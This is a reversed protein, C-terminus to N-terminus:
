CWIRTQTFDRFIVSSLAIWIAPGCANGQLVGQPYNWWDGIDDGGYTIDSDGFATRIKHIMRQITDFMSHIKSPPICIRLLALAAATHVIRDYCGALDSSTLAFCQRTYQHHDIINRKAVMQDISSSGPKAFQETAITQLSLGNDTTNEGLMKNNQNYETDLIVLTRQKTLEFNMQKKLIMLDICKRHRVPSYGSISPIEERQFFVALIIM